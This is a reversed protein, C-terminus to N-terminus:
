RITSPRRSMCDTSARRSRPARGAAAWVLARWCRCRTAPYYGIGWWVPLWVTGPQPKKNGAVGTNAHPARRARRAYLSIFSEFETLRLVHPGSLVGPLVEIVVVASAIGRADAGAASRGGSRRLHRLDPTPWVDSCPEAIRRFSGRSAVQRAWARRSVVLAAPAATNPM